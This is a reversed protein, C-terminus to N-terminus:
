TASAATIANAERYSILGALLLAFMLAREQPGGFSRM